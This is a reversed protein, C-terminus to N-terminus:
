SLEINIIVMQFYDLSDDSEDSPAETM